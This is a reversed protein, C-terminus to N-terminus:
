RALAVTIGVSFLLSIGFQLTKEERFLYWVDLFNLFNWCRESGSLNSAHVSHSGFLLPSREVLDGGSFSRLKEGCRSQHHQVKREGQLFHFRLHSSLRRLRQQRAAAGRGAGDGSQGVREQHARLHRCLPLSALCACFVPIQLHSKRTPSGLTEFSLSKLACGAGRGRAAAPQVAHSKIRSEEGATGM